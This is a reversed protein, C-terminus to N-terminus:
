TNKIMSSISHMTSTFTRKFMALPMLYNYQRIDCYNNQVAVKLMLKNNLNNFYTCTLFILSQKRWLISETSKIDKLTLHLLFINSVPKGKYVSCKVSSPIIEACKAIFGCAWHFTQQDQPEQTNNCIITEFRINKM